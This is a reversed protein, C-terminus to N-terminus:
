KITICDKIKEFTKDGIGEICKIEELSSFTTQERYDVIREAYVEGIGDLTMLIAKPATNINIKESNSDDGLTADVTVEGKKSIYLKEGDELKRAKNLSRTDALENVGGALVIADNVRSGENLAYVGPCNVEGDVDVIIKNNELSAQENIIENKVETENNFAIEEGKRALKVVIFAIIILAVILVVALGKKYISNNM